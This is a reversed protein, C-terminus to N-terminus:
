HEIGGFYNRARQSAGARHGDNIRIQQQLAEAANNTLKPVFIFGADPEPVVTTKPTLAHQHYTLASNVFISKVVVDHLKDTYYSNGYREEAVALFKQSGKLAELRRSLVRVRWQHWWKLIKM